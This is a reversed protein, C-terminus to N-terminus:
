NNKKIKVIDWGKETKLGEIQRDSIRDTHMSLCLLYRPRSAAVYLKKMYEIKRKGLKSRDVDDHTLCDVLSSIDFQHFKTELILTADHTEGKVGHITSLQIDVGNAGSYVNGNNSLMNTKEIKNVDYRLYHSADGNLSDLGLLAKLRGIIVIWNTEHPIGGMVLETFFYKFEKENKNERLERIMTPKSYFVLNGFRNIIKKKALRLLELVSQILLNYRESINGEVLTACHVVAQCFNEPRFTKPNKSKDFNKWYSKVTLDDKEPHKGVAGVAKVVNRNREPLQFVLKSFSELVLDISEDDFLFLTNAPGSDLNPRSTCLDKIKNFSLGRIKQAIDITFRHSEAIPILKANNYSENPCEGSIGDFISQDPDGLRQICCSEKPFLKNILLDQHKQTDQMEDILVIPFRKQISCSIDKNVNVLDQGFAYMESYFFLGDKLISKKATVLDKYSDSESQKKFGPVSLQLRNDYHIKLEALLEVLSAHKRDLYAKTKRNIRQSLVNICIADDIRSVVFGNSRSRCAPLGLFRNIFEQITGIFHPYSLLKYGTPYKKLWKLIEDKAVNTHTLVCVGRNLEEWHKSLLLLKFGVLTTKGSGPCAQIDDYSKIANRRSEDFILSSGTTGENLKDLLWDISANTIQIKNMLQQDMMTKAWRQHQLMLM